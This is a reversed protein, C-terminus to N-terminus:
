CPGITPVHWTPVARSAWNLSGNGPHPALEFSAQLVRPNADKRTASVVCSELLRPPLEPLTARFLRMDVDWGDAELAARYKAILGRVDGGLLLNGYGSEPESSGPGFWARVRLEAGTPVLAWDPWPAKPGLLAPQISGDARGYGVPAAGFEMQVLAWFAPSALVVPVAIALYLLLSRM